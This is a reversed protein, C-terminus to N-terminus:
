GTRVAGGVSVVVFAKPVLTCSLAGKGVVKFWRGFRYDRARRNLVFSFHGLGGSVSNFRFSVLRLRDGSAHRARFYAMLTARKFAAAHLRSGPLGSSYWAFDPERAFLADLTATDGVNYAVVFRTFTVHTEGATCSSALLVAAALPALM